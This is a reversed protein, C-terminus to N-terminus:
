TGKLSKNELRNIKNQVSKVECKLYNIVNNLKVNERKLQVIKGDQAETISNAVLLKDISYQILKLVEKMTTEIISKM